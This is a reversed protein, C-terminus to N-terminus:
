YEDGRRNESIKPNRSSGSRYSTGGDGICLASRLILLSLKIAIVAVFLVGFSVGLGPVLVGTFLSWVSGFLSKLIDLIAM